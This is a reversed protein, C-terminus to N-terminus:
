RKADTAGTTRKGPAPCPLSPSLSPSPHPSSPHSSSPHSSSPSSPCPRDPLRRRQTILALSHRAACLIGSVSAGDRMMDKYIVDGSTDSRVEFKGNSWGSILEPEGDGDLDFGTIATVEHKSKVRWRRQGPATYVGVTGNALAYGFTHRRLPTLAVIRDTETTESIVEEHRFVRIEYDDSGVLLELDGDEDVDCFAMTSVNDGTVTWYAESGSHDFGQISCNGGVLALPTEVGSFKGVVIANVGDPADKFFLDSNETVDYALLTTQAGVLLQEREVKPNLKGCALASIKRNINLFRVQAQPDKEHPSHFFIKGATTGCTLSPNRGDFKGVSVLGRLIPNNLELTFAPILM